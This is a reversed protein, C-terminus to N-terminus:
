NNITKPEDEFKYPSRQLCQFEPICTFLKVNTTRILSTVFIALIFEQIKNEPVNQGKTQTFPNENIVISANTQSSGYICAIQSHNMKKMDIYM